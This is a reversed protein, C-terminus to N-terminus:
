GQFLSVSDTMGQSYLYDAVERHGGMQARKVANVVMMDKGEGLEYSAHLNAGADILLKVMKLDGRGAAAILATAHSYTANEGANVDAGQELLWIAAKYTRSSAAYSLPTICRVEDHALTHDVPLGKEVLFELIDIHNYQAAVHILTEGSPRNSAHLAKPYEEILRILENLNGERVSGFVAQKLVAWRM